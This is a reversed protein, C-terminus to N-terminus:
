RGCGALGRAAQDITSARGSCGGGPRGAPGASGAAHMTGAALWSPFGHETAEAVARAAHGAAADPNTPLLAWWAAYTHVFARTFPGRPLGLSEASRVAAAVEDRGRDREGLIWLTVGEIVTM